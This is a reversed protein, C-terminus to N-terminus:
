SSPFQLQFRVSSPLERVLESPSKKLVDPLKSIRPRRIMRQVESHVEGYTWCLKKWAGSRGSCSQTRIVGNTKLGEHTLEMGEEHEVEGGIESGNMTSNLTLSLNPRCQIVRGEHRSEWSGPTTIPAHSPIGVTFRPSHPGEESQRAIDSVVLFSRFLAILVVSNKKNCSNRM